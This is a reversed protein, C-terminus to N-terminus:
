STVVGGKPPQISEGCAEPGELNFMRYYIARAVVVDQFCYQAILEHQGEVFQDLVKGGDGHGLQKVLDCVTRTPPM